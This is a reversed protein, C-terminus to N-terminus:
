VLKDSSYWVMHTSDCSNLRQVKVIIHKPNETLVRGVTKVLDEIM